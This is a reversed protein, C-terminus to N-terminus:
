PVKVTALAAEDVQVPFKARLGDLMKEEAAHIQDQSLKVRITREAEEFTREHPELKQTLRVVYYRTLTKEPEIPGIPPGQVVRGLVDGV